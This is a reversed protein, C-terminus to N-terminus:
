NAQNVLNTKQPHTKEWSDEPEEGVDLWAPDIESTQTVFFEDCFGRTRRNMENVIGDPVPVCDGLSDIKERPISLKEDWRRWSFIAFFDPSIPLTIEIKDQALGPGRLLPPFKYSDPNFWVCPRDSTIFRQGEGAAFVAMNMRFLWEVIVDISHGMFMHHGHKILDATERSAIPEAGHFKEMSEVQDHLRSYFDTWNARQSKTRTVMMATFVCLLGREEDSLKAFEKIKDNRLRAFRDEIVSFSDEIVLSRSGDELRVTYFDTETFLKRPAKKKSSSGDRNHVWVYPTHGPATASDCWAKLYCEPIVHQNKKEM